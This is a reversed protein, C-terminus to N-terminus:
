KVGCQRLAKRVDRHPGLLQERRELYPIAEDCRGLEALSKGVNYNAYGEYTEGTGDLTALARQALPLAAAYNGSRMLATAQDTLQVAEGVSAAAPPPPPTAPPPPPEQSRAPPPPPEVTVTVENEVTKTPGTRVVTTVLTRPPEARQDDGGGDGMLAAVGV